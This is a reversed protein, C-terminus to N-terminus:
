HAVVNRTVYMEYKKKLYNVELTSKIATRLTTGQTLLKFNAWDQEIYQLSVVVGVDVKVKLIDKM